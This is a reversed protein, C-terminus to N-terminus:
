YGGRPYKRIENVGLKNFFKTIQTTTTRGTVFEDFSYNYHMFNYGIITDSFKVVAAVITEYSQLVFFEHGKSDRLHYYRTHCKALPIARNSKIAVENENCYVAMRAALQGFYEKETM